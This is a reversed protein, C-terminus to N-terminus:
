KEQKAEEVFKVAYYMQIVNVIEDEEAVVENNDEHKENTPFFWDKEFSIRLSDEEKSVIFHIPYEEGLKDTFVFYFHRQDFGIEPAVRHYTGLFRLKKTELSKCFDIEDKRWYLENKVNGIMLYMEMKVLGENEEVVHAKDGFYKHMMKKFDEKQM